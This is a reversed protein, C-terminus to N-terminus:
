AGITRASRSCDSVCRDFCAADPSDILGGAYSEVLAAARVRQPAPRRGPANSQGFIRKGLRRRRLPSLEDFRATLLPRRFPCPSPLCARARCGAFSRLLPRVPGTSAAAEPRTLHLAAVAAVFLKARM